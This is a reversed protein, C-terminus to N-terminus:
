QRIFPFRDRIHHNFFGGKSTAKAMEGALNEPVDFYSYRKGSIFQVDLRHEAANYHFERIATSPM